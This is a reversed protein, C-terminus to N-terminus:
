SQVSIEPLSERQVRDFFPWCFIKLENAEEVFAIIKFGVLNQLIEPHDLDAWQLVKVLSPDLQGDGKKVPLSSVM